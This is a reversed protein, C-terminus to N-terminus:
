LRMSLEDTFRLTTDISLGNEESLSLELTQRSDNIYGEYTEVIDLMKKDPAKM